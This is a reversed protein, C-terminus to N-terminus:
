SNKILKQIQLALSKDDIKNYSNALEAFGKIMEFLKELDVNENDYSNDSLNLKRGSSDSTVDTYEVKILKKLFQSVMVLNDTTFILLPNRDSRLIAFITDKNIDSKNLKKHDNVFSAFNMEGRIILEDKESKKKLM